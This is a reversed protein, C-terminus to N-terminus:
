LEFAHERFPMVGVGTARDRFHNPGNSSHSFVVM